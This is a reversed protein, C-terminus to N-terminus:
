DSARLKLVKAPQWYALSKLEKKLQVLTMKNAKALEALREPSMSAIHAKAKAELELREVKRVAREDKKRALERAKYADIQADINGRKALPLNLIGHDLM